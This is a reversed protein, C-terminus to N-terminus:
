SRMDRKAPMTRLIITKIEERVRAMVFCFDELYGKHIYVICINLNMHKINLYGRLLEIM